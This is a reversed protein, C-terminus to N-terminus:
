VRRLEVLAIREEAVHQPHALDIVAARQVEKMAAARVDSTRNPNIKDVANRLRGDLIVDSYSTREPANGDFAIVSGHLYRYGLQELREIALEEISSETLKHIKM